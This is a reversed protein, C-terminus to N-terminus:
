YNNQELEQRVDDLPSVASKPEDPVFELDFNVKLKIRGTQWGISNAQLIECKEGDKFWLNADCKRELKQIILSAITNTIRSDLSSLILSFLKRIYIPDRSDFSIIDRSDCSSLYEDSSLKFNFKEM